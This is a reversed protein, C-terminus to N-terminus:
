VHARGIQIKYNNPDKLIMVSVIHKLRHYSYKNNIALNLLQVQWKILHKCQDDLLKGHQM